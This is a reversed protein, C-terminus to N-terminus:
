RHNSLLNKKQANHLMRKMEFTKKHSLFHITHYFSFLLPHM